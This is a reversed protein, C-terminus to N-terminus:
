RSGTSEKTCAEENPSCCAGITICQLAPTPLVPVYMAICDMICINFVVPLTFTGVKRLCILVCRLRSTCVLDTCIRARHLVPTYLLQFYLFLCFLVEKMSCSTTSFCCNSFCFSSSGRLFGLFLISFCNSCM